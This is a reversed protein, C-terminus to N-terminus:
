RGCILAEDQQPGKGARTAERSGPFSVTKAELLMILISLNLVSRRLRTIEHRVPSIDIRLM